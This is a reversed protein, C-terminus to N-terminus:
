STSCAQAGTFPWSCRWQGAYYSVPIPQGDTLTPKCGSLNTENILYCYVTVEAGTTDTDLYCVITSGSGAATKCYATRDGTGGRAPPSDVQAYEPPAFNDTRKM